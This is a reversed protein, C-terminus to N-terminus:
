GSRILRRAQQILVEVVLEPDSGSQRIQRQAQIVGNLLRELCRRGLGEARRRTYYLSGRRQQGALACAEDDDTSALAGLCRRIENAVSGLAQIPSLGRGAHLLRLAKGVQGGLFADTFAWVPQEADGAILEEAIAPTLVEDGAYAILQEIAALLADIDSGRHDILVQAIRGPHEVPQEAQLLRQVLWEQVQKPGPTEAQFYASAGQLRKGLAQNRPLEDAVLLLAGALIPQGVLPLLAERQKQLYAGGARLVVLGNDGFLSPTDLGVLIGSLDKPETHREVPGDWAALLEGVLEDRLRWSPSVVAQLRAEIMPMTRLMMRWRRWAIGVRCCDDQMM